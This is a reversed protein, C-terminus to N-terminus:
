QPSFDNSLIGPNEPHVLHGTLGAFGTMRDLVVRRVV